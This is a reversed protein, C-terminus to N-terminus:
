AAKTPVRHLQWPGRDKLNLIPRGFKMEIHLSGSGLFYEGPVFPTSNDDIPLEFREPFQFGTDVYCEQSRASWPRGDGTKGSRNVMKETVLIKIM